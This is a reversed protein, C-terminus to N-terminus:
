TQQGGVTPLAGNRDSEDHKELISKRKATTKAKYGHHIHAPLWGNTLAM